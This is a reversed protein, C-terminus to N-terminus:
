AIRPRQAEVRRVRSRQWARHAVHTAAAGGVAAISGGFLGAVLAVGNAELGLVLVTLFAFALCGLATLLALVDFANWRGPAAPAAPAPSAAPPLDSVLRRLELLTPAAMAAGLRGDLEEPSLRGAAFHVSLQDCVASRELDGARQGAYPFPLAAPVLPGPTDM